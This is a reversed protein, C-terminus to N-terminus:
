NKLPLQALPALDISGLLETWQRKLDPNKPDQQRAQYLTAVLDYWLDHNAYLSIRETPTSQQLTDTLNPDLSRRTISSDIQPNASSDGSDTVIWLRWRYTQDSVLPPLSQGASNKLTALNIKLLGSTTPAPLKTTYTTGSAKDALVFEMLRDPAAKIYFVIDPYDATTVLRNPQEADPLKPVLATLCGGCATSVVGRVGAYARGGPGLGPLIGITYRPSKAEIYRSVNNIARTAYRDGPRQKLAERFALLAAHYDRKSDARYGQRMYRDYPTTSAQAIRPAIPSAPPTAVAMSMWDSSSLSLLLVLGLTRRQV